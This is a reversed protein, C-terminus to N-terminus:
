RKFKPGMGEYSEEVLPPKLTYVTHLEPLGTEPLFHSSM